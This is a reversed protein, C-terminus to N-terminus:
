LVRYFCLLKNRVFFLCTSQFIWLVNSMIVGVKLARQDILCCSDRSPWFHVFTAADLYLHILMLLFSSLVFVSMNLVVTEDVLLVCWRLDASTALSILHCNEYFMILACFIEVTKFTKPLKTENCPVARVCV